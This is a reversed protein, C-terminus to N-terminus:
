FVWGEQVHLSIAAEGHPRDEDPGANGQISQEFLLHKSFKMRVISRVRVIIHDERAM